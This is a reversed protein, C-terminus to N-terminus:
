KLTRTLIVRVQMLFFPLCGSKGEDDTIADVIIVATVSSLAALLADMVIMYM